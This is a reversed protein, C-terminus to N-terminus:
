GLGVSVLVIDREVLRVLSRREGLRAGTQPFSKSVRRDIDDLDDALHPFLAVDLKEAVQVALLLGDLHDASRRFRRIILSGRGWM